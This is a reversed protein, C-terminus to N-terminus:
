IESGKSIHILGKGLWMHIKHSLRSSTIKGPEIPDWIITGDKLNITMEDGNHFFVVQDPTGKNIIFKDGLEELAFDEINPVRGSDLQFKTM